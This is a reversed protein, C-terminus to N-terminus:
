DLLELIKPTIKGNPALVYHDLKIGVFFSGTEEPNESVRIDEPRVRRRLRESFLKAISSKEAAYVIDM